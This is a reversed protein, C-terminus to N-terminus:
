SGEWYARLALLARRVRSKVTGLPLDFREVLEGHSYGAYFSAKLLDRDLPELQALAQETQVSLMPDNGPAAPQREPDHLDWEADREPRSRRARLRSLCDNRAVTYVFARASGRAPDFTHASRYVKLFTDQLVEEAEERSGLLNLSLAYVNGSLRDYLDRLAGGGGPEDGRRLRALLEAEADAEARVPTRSFRYASGLAKRVAALGVRGAAASWWSPPTYM